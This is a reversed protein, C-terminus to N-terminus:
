CRIQFRHELGDLVAQLGLEFATASTRQEDIVALQGLQPLEALDEGSLTDLLDEATGTTAVRIAHGQVYDDVIRLLSWVQGPALKLSEGARALQMAYKAINPGPKPRQAFLALVWPHAAFAAHSTRAVQSIAERWNGSLPEQVLMTATFHDALLALLDDKDAIHGYLRMPQVGLDAAVRRISVAPLGDRDAIRFAAEIIAERSLSVRPRGSRRRAAPEPKSDGDSRTARDSAQQTDKSTAATAPASRPAAASWVAHPPEARGGDDRTVAQDRGPPHAYRAAERDGLFPALVFRTLEPLLDPLRETQRAAVHQYILWAVGGILAKREVPGPPQARHRRAAEYSDIEDLLPLFGEIVSVYRKLAQPGAAAAEVMCMRAFGPEAALVELVAQLMARTREPTAQPVRESAAAVHAMLIETAADYAALFCDQKGTFLEYFTKSSVGARAIVGAVTVEAYGNESAEQAIADLIRDRQNQIVFARGLGHRGPPLRAPLTPSSSM